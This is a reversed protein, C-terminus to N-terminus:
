FLTKSTDIRSAARDPMTEHSKGSLPLPLPSVPRANAERARIRGDPRFGPLIAGHRTKLTWGHRKADSEVSDHM